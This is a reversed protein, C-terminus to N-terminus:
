RSDDTWGGIVITNDDLTISAHSNRRKHLHGYLSWVNNHFRAIIDLNSSGSWGGIVFASQDTSAM